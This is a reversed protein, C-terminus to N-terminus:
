RIPDGTSYSGLSGSPTVRVSGWDFGSRNFAGADSVWRKVGNEFFFIRPDGRERLLARDPPRDALHDMAGVPVEIVQETKFGLERLEKEGAVQFRTGKQVVFIKDSGAERFLFGDQKAQQRLSEAKRLGQLFEPDFRPAARSKGARALWAPPAAPPSPSDAPAPREAEPPAPVYAVPEVEAAPPEKGLLKFIFSGLLGLVGLAVVSFVVVTPRM